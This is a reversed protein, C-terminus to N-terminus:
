WNYTASAIVRRGDGFYCVLDTCTTTYERDFLNSVNLALRVDDFDYRLSADTLTYGGTEIDVSQNGSIPSLNDRGIYTSEGIYRLGAGMGLGKLVGSTQTYDPWVSATQRPQNPILSDKEWSNPSKTIRADVYSYAASLKLQETLELGVEIEIGTSNVEGVQRSINNTGSLDYETIVYDDKILDFAALSIFGDINKPEYKVGVEYQKAKEPDFLNGEVDTSTVLNFSESYSIYPSLGNDFKYLLGVRGSFDEASKDADNATNNSFDVDVDNKVWDYRGGILLRWNEYALQDQIYLGTQRSYVDKKNSLSLNGVASGYVPNLYNIASATGSFNKETSDSYRWDLGILVDHTLKGSDFHALLQNDVAFANLDEKRRSAERGQIGKTLDSALINRSIGLAKFDLNVHDYRTNQRFSWTDNFAHSFEYGVSRYDRDFNNFDEEGDFFGFERDYVKAGGKFASFTKLLTPSFHSNFSYTQKDHQELALVTLQTDDSINWTLSPAVMKRRSDNYDVESNGDNGVFTLRYLLKGEDDVKGSFDGALEFFDDSGASLRLEHLTEETPRKSVLNVLGGPQAQGYTVSSPGRIVEVRELAYSDARPLGYTSTPILLGDRYVQNKADFGRLSFWDYRTDYGYPVSLSPTYQLAQTVTKVGRNILQQQTVVSISQPTDFISANTKTASTGREAHYSDIPDYASLSTHQGTVTVVPLDASKDSSQTLRYSTDSQQVVSLPTGRLLIQLGESIKYDGKLGSTKYPAALEPSFSLLIGAQRGFQNLATALDGAAVNFTRKENSQASVQEAALASTTSLVTLGAAALLATTLTVASLLAPKNFM